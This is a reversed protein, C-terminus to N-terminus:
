RIYRSYDEGCDDEDHELEYAELEELQRKIDAKRHRTEEALDTKERHLKKAHKQGRQKTLFGQQLDDENKSM